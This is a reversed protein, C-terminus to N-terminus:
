SLATWTSFAQLGGKDERGVEAGAALRAPDGAAVLVGRPAVGAPSLHGGEIRLAVRGERRAVEGEGAVVALAGGAGEAAGRAGVPAVLLGAGKEEVLLLADAAAVAGPDARVVRRAEVLRAADHRLAGEARVAEGLARGRRRRRRGSPRARSARRRRSGAPSRGPSARRNRCLRGEVAEPREAEARREDDVGGASRRRGLSEDPVVGVGERRGERRARPLDREGGLLTEEEESERHRGEGGPERSPEAERSAGGGEDGEEREGGEGEADGRGM